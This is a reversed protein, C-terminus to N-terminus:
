RELEEPIDPQGDEVESEEELIEMHEAINGLYSPISERQGGFYYPYDIYELSPSIELPIVASSSQQIGQKAILKSKFEIQLNNILQIISQDLSVHIEIESKNSQNIKNIQHVDIQKSEFAFYSGLKYNNDLKQSQDESQCLKIEERMLDAPEEKIFQSVAELGMRSMQSQGKESNIREAEYKISECFHPRNRRSSLSLEACGHIKSEMDFDEDELKNPYACNNFSYFNNEEIDVEKKPTSHHAPSLGESENFFTDSINLEICTSKKREQILNNQSRIM